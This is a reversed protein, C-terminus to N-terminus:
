VTFRPKNNRKGQRSDGDYDPCDPLYYDNRRGAGHQNEYRKDQSNEASIRQEGTKDQLRIPKLRHREQGSNGHSKRGPENGANSVEDSKNDRRHGVREPAFNDAPQDKQGADAGIEQYKINDPGCPIFSDM